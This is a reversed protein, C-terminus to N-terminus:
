GGTQASRPTVSPPHVVRIGRELFPMLRIDIGPGFV